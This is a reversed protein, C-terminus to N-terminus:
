AVEGEINCPVCFFLTIGYETAIQFYAQHWQYGESETIVENFEAGEISLNYIDLINSLVAKDYHTVLIVYGGSQYPMKECNYYEDMIGLTQEVEVVVEHPLTEEKCIIKMWNRNGIIHIM